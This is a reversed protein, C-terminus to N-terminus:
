ATRRQRSGHSTGVLRDHLRPTAGLQYLADGCATRGEFVLRIAKTKETQASPGIIPPRKVDQKSPARVEDGEGDQAQDTEKQDHATELLGLRPIEAGGKPKLTVMGIPERMKQPYAIQM